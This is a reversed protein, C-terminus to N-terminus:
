DEKASSVMYTVTLRTPYKVAMADIMDKMLIDLPTHNAILLNIVCDDHLLTSQMMRWCPAIGTGGAIL